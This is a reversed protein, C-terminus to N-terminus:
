RVEEGSHSLSDPRHLLYYSTQNKSKSVSVKMVCDRWAGMVGYM